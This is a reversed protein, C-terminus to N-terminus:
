PVITFNSMDFHDSKRNGVADWFSFWNTNLASFHQNFDGFNSYTYTYMHIYVAYLYIYIYINQM